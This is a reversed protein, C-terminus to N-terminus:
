TCLESLTCDLCCKLCVVTAGVVAPICSSMINMRSSSDLHSSELQLSVVPLFLGTWLLKPM